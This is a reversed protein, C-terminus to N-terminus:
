AHRKHRGLSRDKSPSRHRGVYNEVHTEGVYTM